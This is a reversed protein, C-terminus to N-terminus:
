NSATMWWRVLYVISSVWFAALFVYMADGPPYMSETFVRSIVYGAAAILIPTGVFAAVHPKWDTNRSQDREGHLYMAVATLPTLLMILGLLGFASLFFAAGDTSGFFVGWIVLPLLVVYVFIVFPWKSPFDLESGYRDVLAPSLPYRWATGFTAKGMAILGVFFTWFTVLFWLTLLTPIVVSAITSVPSPLTAVDTVGQGTFEAYTFLSGFTVVTLALVTLHWDLANRANRKTFENTALLYVIGAGAVGTPIAVFHVLIGGITREELLKPGQTAPTPEHTCDSPM